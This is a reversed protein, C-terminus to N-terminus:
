NLKDNSNVKHTDTSDMKHTHAITTTTNLVTNNSETRNKDYGKRHYYVAMVIRPGFLCLLVAFATTIVAFATVGARFEVQTAIYSPVFGLWVVAIAITSISVHRAENFNDPFCITLIGLINNIVILATDYIILLILMALHPAQCTLILTPFDSSDDANSRVNRTTVPHVVILSIIALTMQGAVIMFTFLIQYHPEIFRPRGVQKRRLFIRAIRFLKILLAGFILSFCLWLGIRQFICIALSPQVVYFYPLLFSLLIGTLLVVMQERGSSKVIPTNWFIGMGVAVAIVVILGLISLAVIVAGWIDSPKLFSVNLEICTDSGNLPNSGWQWQSCSVCSNNDSVSTNGLCPQCTGCCSGRVRIFISGPPCNMCQSDIQEGKEAQGFQLDALQTQFQITQTVPNFIGVQSLQYGKTSNGQLNFINYLAERNGNEDFMVQFGSPSTFNSSQVYKLLQNRTLPKKEGLCTQTTRNWLFPTACNERLFRDLGHAFSYIADVLLGGSIHPRYDSHGGVASNIHCTQNRETFFKDCEKSYWKHNRQNNAKTVTTYFTEFQEFPEAHPHFLFMGQLLSGFRDLTTQAVITDSALFLFERSTEIKELAELFRDAITEASFLIVVSARSDHLLRSVVKEYQDDTFSADLGEDFDICISKGNEISLRRFERIGFLGYADTSHIASVLTWNFKLALHYMAEAQINDPPVTRLFYQYRDRNSLLPSTSLYSVQTINFPRLFTAVPVSVGSTLSGVIGLLFSRKKQEKPLHNNLHLNAETVLIDMTEDIAINESYCTDRIAYGLTVNPLLNPDNNICDIAYLTLEVRKVGHGTLASSCKGGSSNAVPNHVPILVGIVFDTENQSQIGRLRKGDTILQSPQSLSPQACKTSLSAENTFSLQLSFIALVLTLRNFNMVLVNKQHAVESVTKYPKSRAITFTNTSFTYLTHKNTNRMHM